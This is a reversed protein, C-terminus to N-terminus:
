SPSAPKQSTMWAVFGLIGLGVAVFGLKDHDAALCVVAAAWLVLPTLLKRKKM